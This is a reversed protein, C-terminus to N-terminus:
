YELQDRCSLLSTLAKGPGLGRFSKEKQMPAWLIGTIASLQM